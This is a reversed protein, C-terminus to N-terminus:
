KRSCRNKMEASPVIGITPYTKSRQAPAIGGDPDGKEPDYIHNCITCEWKGM